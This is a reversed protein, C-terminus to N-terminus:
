KVYASHVFGFKGNYKIYYWTDGSPCRISDCVSVRDNLRLSFSCKPNSAGAWTRVNLGSKAVVVGEFVNIKNPTTKGSVTFVSYSKAPLVHVYKANTVVENTNTTTTTTKMTAAVKAYDPCIFGRIYRGNRKMNRVAVTDKYNGEIVDFSDDYVACVVGVHAPVNVDDTKMYDAGDKWDYMIVDGIKPMHNDNEVWIGNQKAYETMYYCSCEVCPFLKGSGALGNAIFAASVFTACWADSVGMKYRNCMKSNNFIDLIERHKTSGEVIGKYKTMWDVVKKRLEDESMTTTDPKTEKLMTEDILFDCDCNGKIGNVMGEWSYQWMVPKYKHTYDQELEVLWLPYTLVENSVYNELYHINAYYGVKKCGLKKLADMYELCMFSYKDRSAKQGAKNFTDYEIDCWCWTNTIDLGAKRMCDVACQANEDITAGDVYVFHYTMVDIGNQKCGEVNRLFFKDMTKRYSSRLVAFKVGQKAVKDWEITDEQWQSVDIGSIM